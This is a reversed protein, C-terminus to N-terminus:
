KSWTCTREGLETCSCHHVASWHDSLDCHADDQQHVALMAGSDDAVERLSICRHPLVEEVFGEKILKCLYISLQHLCLCSYRM